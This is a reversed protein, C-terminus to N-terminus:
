VVAASPRKRLKFRTRLSKKMARTWTWLSSWSDGGIVEYQVLKLDGPLSMGGVLPATSCFTVSDEPGDIGDNNIGEFLFQTNQYDLDAFATAFNSTFSRVLFQRLRLEELTIRGMSVSETVTLFCAYIITMIVVLLTIAILIEILTFGRAVM